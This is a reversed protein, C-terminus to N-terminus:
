LKIVIGKSWSMACLTKRFCSFTTCSTVFDRAKIADLCKMHVPGAAPFPDTQLCLYVHSSLILVCRLSLFLLCFTVAGIQNLVAVLQLSIKFATISKRTTYFAPFKQDSPHTDAESSPGGVGPPRNASM